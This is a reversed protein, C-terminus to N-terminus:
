WEGFENWPELIMKCVIGVARSCRFLMWLNVLSIIITIFSYAIILLPPQQLLTPSRSWENGVVGDGGVGRVGVGRVRQGLISVTAFRSEFWRCHIRTCDKTFGWSISGCTSIEGLNFIM